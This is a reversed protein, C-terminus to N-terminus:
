RPGSAGAPRAWLFALIAVLFSELAKSAVDLPTIPEVEGAEPGFYPIGVTRTVVYLGIVLLNGIVGAALVARKVKEHNPGTDKPNIANTWLALGFLVQAAAAFVFFLGYGWWQAFHAPAVLGHIGGALFSLTGAAKEWPRSRFAPTAFPDSM